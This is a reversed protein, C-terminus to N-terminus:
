PGIGGFGDAVDHGKGGSARGVDDRAQMVSRNLLIHPWCTSTSLRDPAPPVTPAANAALDGASPYVSNWHLMADLAIASDSYAFIGYSWWRSKAGIERMPVVGLTRTTCGDIGARETFSNM